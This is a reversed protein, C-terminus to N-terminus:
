NVLEGNKFVRKAILKGTASYFRWTGQKKDNKYEGKVKLEGNEHYERYNGQRFGERVEFEVKKSGEPYSETFVSQKLDVLLYSDAAVIWHSVLVSTSDTEAVSDAEFDISVPEPITKDNFYAYFRTKFFDGEKSLQFGAYPYSILDSTNKNIQQMTQPRMTYQLTKLYSETNLLVLANSRRGFASYFEPFGDRKELYSEEAQADIITKLVQPHNSFVVYDGLLIYYPSELKQFYKGLLMKFFGKVSLYQITYGKYEVDEIKVPTRNKIRRAIFELNERAQNVSRTKLLVAFENNKGLGLPEMQALTIEDGIWDLFNKRISIGLYNEVSEIEKQYNDYAYPTNRMSEQMNDFYDTFRSFCLSVTTAFNSPLVEEISSNGMGSNIIAKLSSTVSDNIMTYGDCSINGEKDMDFNLGTYRLSNTFERTNDDVKILMSKLYDDLRAYNIYLRFMGNNSTKSVMESFYNDTGFNTDSSERMSKEIISRSFSGVFLNNNFYFYFKHGKKKMEIQFLDGSSEKVRTVNLTSTSFSGILDKLKLIKSIRRLDIVYAFDYKSGTVMHMSVFVQRHGVFESLQRNSRIITDMMAIGKELGTFVPQQNLKPWAKNTTIRDWAEFLNDTEAVFVADYPIAEMPSTKSYPSLFHWGLYGLTTLLLILFIWKFAKM